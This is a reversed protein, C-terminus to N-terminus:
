TKRIRFLDNFEYERLNRLTQTKNLALLIRGRMAASPNRVGALLQSMYGSSTHVINAFSNQSLNKEALIKRLRSDKLHVQM